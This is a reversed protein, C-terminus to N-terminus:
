QRSLPRLDLMRHFQYTYGAVDKRLGIDLTPHWLLIIPIDQKVLEIMRRVDADYIAPDTEYRTKEVLAAFEPNHYSGFNWRTDGSYFIRFFYDPDSLFATSGEFYFPVSKEQLLTGLQGAPVKNITVRIGIRDLAEQVLLAIPEAVSAQALDFSFTTDFGGELGAEALLARAKDLDTDYGLPQPFKPSDPLGPQGGFLPQGRGFLAAQFLDAYPLAYAIAQRLKVNDFPALQSNMGIFQFSGTPVGVVQVQAHDALTRAEKPPLDQVIDSDGRLLSAVRLEVAPVHQWLVRRIQPLPGSKWEEFREFVIREGMEAEALRYAGGGATNGQLWEAAWPDQATAHQRALRSNVIIPYTLALNPLAFRDPRPLDIRLTHADLVVFQEPDTMSGTSFQAKGIPSAVVRDLSWKVDEATVPSGDHFTADRRLHFTIARGDPSVEWSEALEPQLDFYDFIRTGDARAQAGFGILRDYVNWSVQISNRNLGPSFSDFSNPAGESLVRLSDGRGQAHGWKAPLMAGAGLAAVSALFSRRHM